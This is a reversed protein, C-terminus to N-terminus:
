ARPDTEPQYTALVLDAVIFVFPCTFRATAALYPHLSRQATAPLRSPLGRPLDLVRGAAFDWRPETRRELYGRLREHLLLVVWRDLEAPLSAVRFFDKLIGGHTMTDPANLISPDRPFKFEVAAKLPTDVVLDVSGGQVLGHREFRVRDPAVGGFEVLANATYRRLSDETLWHRKGAEVDLTLQEAVRSWIGAWDV